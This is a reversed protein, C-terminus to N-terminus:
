GSCCTSFGYARAGAGPPDPRPFSAQKPALHWVAIPFYFEYQTARIAVHKKAERASTLVHFQRTRSSTTRYPLVASDIVPFSDPTESPQSARKNKAM